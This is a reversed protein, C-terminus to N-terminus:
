DMTVFYSLYEGLNMCFYASLYLFCQRLYRLNKWAKYVQRFGSFEAQVRRRLHRDSIVKPGTDLAPCEQTTQCRSTAQFCSLLTSQVDFYVGLFIGITSSIDHHSRPSGYPWRSPSLHRGRYQLHHRRFRVRHHSELQITESAGAHRARRPRESQLMDTHIQLDVILHRSVWSKLGLKVAEESSLIKPLNRVLEPFSAAFFTSLCNSATTGTETYAEGFCDPSVSVDSWTSHLSVKGAPLRKSRVCPWCAPSLPPM